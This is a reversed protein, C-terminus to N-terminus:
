RSAVRPLAPVEDQPSVMLVKSARIDGLDSKMWALRRTMDSRDLLGAVRLEWMEIEKDLRVIEREAAHIEDGKKVHRNRVICFAAGILGATVCLFVIRTLMPTKLPNRYRNGKM